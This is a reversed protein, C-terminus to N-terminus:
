PKKALVYHAFGTVDWFVSAFPKRRISAHLFFLPMLIMRKWSRRIGFKLIDLQNSVLLDKLDQLSWFRVHTPDDYFNLTGRMSPLRLSRESPTEIYVVGGPKLKKILVKLSQDGNQVHELIHSCHIVDYFTDKLKELEEPQEIDLLFFQDCKSLDDQSNNYDRTKDVGHYICNPYNKKTKTPFGNGCGIDLISARPVSLFSHCIEFGYPKAAWYLFKETFRLRDL